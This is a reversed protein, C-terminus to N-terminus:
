IKPIFSPKIESPENQINTIFFSSDATSSVEVKSWNDRWPPVRAKCMGRVYLDLPDEFTEQVGM